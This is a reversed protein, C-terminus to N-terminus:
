RPRTAPAPSLSQSPLGPTERLRELWPWGVAASDSKFNSSNCLPTLYERRVMACPTVRFQTGRDHFKSIATFNCMNVHIALVAM